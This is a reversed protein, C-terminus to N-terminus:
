REAPLSRLRRPPPPHPMVNSEYRNPLGSSEPIGGNREGSDYDVRAFNCTRDHKTLRM